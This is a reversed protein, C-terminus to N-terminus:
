SPGFLPFPEGTERWCLWELPLRRHDTHHNLSPRRLIWGRNELDCTWIAIHTRQSEPGLGLRTCVRLRALRARMAHEIRALLSGEFSAGTGDGGTEGGGAVSELRVDPLRVARRASIAEELGRWQPISLRWDATSSCILAFFSRWSFSCRLRSPRLAIEVSNLAAVKM